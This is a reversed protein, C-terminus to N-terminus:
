TSCPFVRDIPAVRASRKAAFTGAAGRNTSLFFAKPEHMMGVGHGCTTALTDKSTGVLLRIRRPSMSADQDDAVAVPVHRNLLLPASGQLPQFYAVIDGSRPLVAM